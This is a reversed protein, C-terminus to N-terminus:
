TRLFIKKKTIISTAFATLFTIFIGCLVGIWPSKSLIQIIGEVQILTLLPVTFNDMAAYAVMPNQGSYILLNFPKKKKFIDIMITFFILMFIALGASVFFYSLTAPDKKIGGEYAEFFFGLILWYTGWRFISRIFNGSVDSLRTTLRWGFLCLIIVIVFATFVLRAKMGALVVVAILPMLAALLIFYKKGPVNSEEQLKHSNMWKLILDGIITGPIIIFLYYIFEFSILSPVPSYQTLVQVWGHTDASLRVALLVGLIGLRLLLSSRTVLWALSGFVAVNSLILIIIDSHHLSFGSGDPLRVLAMMTVVGAWGLGRILYKVTKTWEAPLKALVPFILAFGCLAVICAKWDPNRSINYFDVQSIYLSFGALLVGRIVISGLIKHLPINQQIRRSLAIPIAAGMSFLFFPFVLDVWTIGPIPTFVHYPPPYQTHYMWSPLTGKPTVSSLLMMIIAFGRLADLSLARRKTYNLVPERVATIDPKLIKNIHKIFRIRCFYIKQRMLEHIIM